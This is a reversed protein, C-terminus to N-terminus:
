AVTRYIPIWGYNDGVKVRVAYDITACASATSVVAGSTSSVTGFDLLPASATSLVSLKLLAVTASGCVSRDLVVSKAETAGSRIYAGVAPTVVYLSTTPCSQMSILTGTGAANQLKLAPGSSSNELTLTPSSDDGIINRDTEAFLNVTDSM